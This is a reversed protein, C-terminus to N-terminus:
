CSVMRHARSQFASCSFSGILKLIVLVGFKCNLLRKKCSLPNNQLEGYKNMTGAFGAIIKAFFHIFFSFM